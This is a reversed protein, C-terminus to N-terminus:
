YLSERLYTAIFVPVDANFEATSASHETGFDSFEKIKKNTADYAYSWGNPSVFQVSLLKGAICGGVYYLTAVGAPSLDVPVGGSPYTTVPPSVSYNWTVTGYLKITKQDISKATFSISATIDSM